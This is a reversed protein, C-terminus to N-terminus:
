FGSGTGVAGLRLWCVMAVESATYMKCQYLEHDHELWHYQSLNGSYMSGGSSFFKQVKGREEESPVPLLVHYGISPVMQHGCTVFVFVFALVSLLWIPFFPSIRPEQHDKLDSFLEGGRCKKLFVIDEKNLGASNPNRNNVALAM